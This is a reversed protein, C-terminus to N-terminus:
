LIRAANRSSLQVPAAAIRFLRATRHSDGPFKSAPKRLLRIESLYAQLGEDLFAFEAALFGHSERRPLAPSSVRGVYYVFV